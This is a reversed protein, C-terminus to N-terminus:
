EVVPQLIQYLQFQIQEESLPIETGNEDVGYISISTIKSNLWCPDMGVPVLLRTGDITCTIKCSNRQPNQSNNFTFNIIVSSISNSIEEDLQIDMCDYDSGDFPFLICNNNNETMPTLRSRLTNFSKGFSAAVLGLNTTNCTDRYDDPAQEPYVKEYLEQPYLAGDNASYFYDHTMIYHYIYYNSKADLLFIVPRERSIIELLAKQADFGKAAQLFGTGCAKSETYYYFGQGDLGLYTQDNQISNCRKMVAEYDKLYHLQDSVMFGPGLIEKQKPSLDTDSSRIFLEPVDYYSYIKSGDDLFLASEGNPYIWMDPRKMDSTQYYIMLPLSLCFSIVVFCLSDPLLKKGYALLMVPLFIGVIAVLIYSTRSLIMNTDARVLTYSYSVLLTLAGTLLSFISSVDKDTQKLIREIILHTILFLFIAVGILPLSFRLCLYFICRYNENSMYTMFTDPPTQGWLAIGDALVTQSSFSLTNKLMKLLLPISFIIPFLCLIWNVYFHPKKWLRLVKFDLFFHYIQNVLLPITGVVIAGGYLPYYIGAVFCSLLWVKLWLNHKERLKPLYLLLLVPLVFYQRNYCPLSFLISFVIGWTTGVHETIFYMTVICFIVMSISIAPSYDSITGNLLWNQIGGSFFPFLVSVPTYEEYLSRGYTIVQQWPIMQEGHHHQDPQAYMPAASFSNYVFLIIPTIKCSASKLPLLTINKQKRLYKDQLLYNRTHYVLYVYCILLFLIFFCTYGKAYPITIIEGRYRYKDVFYVFLLFPLFFQLVVLSYQLLRRKGWIKYFILLISAFFLTFLYLLKSNAGSIFGTVCLLTAIGTIMYYSLPFLLVVEVMSDQFLFYALLAVFSLFFIPYSIDGFIILRCINPVGTCLLLKWLLNSANTTQDSRKQETSKKPDSHMKHFIIYSGTNYLLIFVFIFLLLVGYFLHLEGTKNTGTLALSEIIFDDYIQPQAAVIPFFHLFVKMSVLLSVLASGIFLCTYKISNQKTM